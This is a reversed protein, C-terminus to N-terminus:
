LLNNKLGNILCKLTRERIKCNKNKINKIKTKNIDIENINFYDIDITEFYYEPITAGNNKLYYLNNRQNIFYSRDFEENKDLNYFFCRYYEDEKYYYDYYKSKKLKNKNINVTLFSEEYAERIATTLINENGNRNGGLDNMLNNNSRFLIIQNKNNKLIVGAGNCKLSSFM